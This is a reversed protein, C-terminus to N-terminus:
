MLHYSFRLFFFLRKDYSHEFLGWQSCESFIRIHGRRSVSSRQETLCMMHIHKGTSFLSLLGRTIIVPTANDAAAMEVPSEGAKARGKISQHLDWKRKRKQTHYLVPNGTDKWANMASWHMPVSDDLHSHTDKYPKKREWRAKPHHFQQEQTRVRVTGECWAETISVTLTARKCKDRVWLDGYVCTCKNVWVSLYVCWRQSVLLREDRERKCVCVNGWGTTLWLEQFLRIFLGKCGVSLCQALQCRLCVYFFFFPVCAYVCASVTCACNCNDGTEM